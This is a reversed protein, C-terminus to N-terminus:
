VYHSLLHATPVEIAVGRPESRSLSLECTEWLWMHFSPRAWCRPGWVWRGVLPSEWFDARRHWLCPALLGLLGDAFHM